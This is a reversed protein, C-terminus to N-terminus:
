AHAIDDELAEDPSDGDNFYERWMEADEPDGINWAREEACLVLQAYWQEFPIQPPVLLDPPPTTSASM